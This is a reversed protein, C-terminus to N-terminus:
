GLRLLSYYFVSGFQLGSYSITLTTGSYSLSVGGSWAGDTNNVLASSFMKSSNDISVIYVANFTSNVNNQTAASRVYLIYAQMNGLTVTISDATAWGYFTGTKSFISNGFLGLNGNEDIRVRETNATKFSIYSHNQQAGSFSRGGGIYIESGYTITAGGNWYIDDAKLRISGSYWSVSGDGNFASGNYSTGGAYSATAATGGGGGGSGGAGALYSSSNFYSIGGQDSSNAVDGSDGGGICVVSISTVGSPCTWTYTAPISYVHSGTVPGTVLIRFLGEGRASAGAFTTPLPM